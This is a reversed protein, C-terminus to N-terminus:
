PGGLTSIVTGASEIMVPPSIQCAYGISSLQTAANGTVMNAIEGFASLALESSM